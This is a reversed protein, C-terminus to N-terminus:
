PPSAPFVTCYLIPYNRGKNWPPKGCLKTRHALKEKNISYFNLPSFCVTSRPAELIGTLIVFILLM